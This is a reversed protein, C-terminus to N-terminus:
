APILIYMGMVDPPLVPEVGTYRGGGVADHYKDHSEILIRTREATIDKLTQEMVTDKFEELEETAFYEMEQRTMNASAQVHELLDNAKEESLFKMEDPAGEYGWLVIEEAVLENKRTKKSIVNRVRLLLLTTKTNVADTRVVSMRSFLSDDKQSLAEAIVEQSLQEVFPHNRGIYHVGEPLPALFGIKLKHGEPLFKKLREHLRDTNLFFQHKQNPVPRLEIDIYEAAEIVFKEVDQPSGLASDTEVVYEKVEDPKIAHQAFISRTAKERDEARKFALSAREESRKVVDNELGLQLQNLDTQISSPNLMVANLVAEM